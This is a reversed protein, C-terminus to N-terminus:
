ETKSQKIKQNNKTKAKRQKIRGWYINNFRTPKSYNDTKNRGFLSMIKDKVDCVTKQRAWSPINHSHAPFGNTSTTM